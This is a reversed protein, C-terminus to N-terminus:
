AGSGDGGQPCLWESRSVAFERAHRSGAKLCGQSGGELWQESGPRIPTASPTSVLGSKASRLPYANHTPCFQESAGFAREAPDCQCHLLLVGMLYLCLPKVVTARFNGAVTPLASAIPNPHIKSQIPPNEGCGYNCAARARIGAKFDVKARTGKVAAQM